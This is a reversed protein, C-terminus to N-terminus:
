AEKLDLFENSHRRLVWSGAKLRFEPIQVKSEQTGKCKRLLKATSNM